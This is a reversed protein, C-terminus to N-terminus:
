YAEPGPKLGLLTAFPDRRLFFKRKRPIMECVQRDIFATALNVDVALNSAVLVITPTSFYGRRIHLSVMRRLDMSIKSAETVRAPESQRCKVELYAAM